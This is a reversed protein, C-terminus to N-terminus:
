ASVVDPTFLGQGQRGYAFHLRRFTVGEGDIKKKKLLKLFYSEEAESKLLV